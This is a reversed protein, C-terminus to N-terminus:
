KNINKLYYIPYLKYIIINDNYKKFNIEIDQLYVM